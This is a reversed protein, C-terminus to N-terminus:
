ALPKFEPTDDGDRDDEDAEDDDQEDDEGMTGEIPQLEARHDVITEANEDAKVEMDIVTEGADDADDAAAEDLPKEPTKSKGAKAKKSKAKAKRKPKVAVPADEDDDDGESSPNHKLHRAHKSWVDEEEDDVAFAATEVPLRKTMFFMTAFFLLLGIGGTVGFVKGATVIRNDEIPEAALTAGQVISANAGHLDSTAYARVIGGLIPALQHQKPGHLEIHLVGTNPANVHLGAELAAKIHEPTAPGTYGIQRMTSMAANIVQDSTMLQQQSEAWAAADGAGSGDVQVVATATWVQDALKASILYSVGAMVALCVIAATVWGFSRQVGWRKIMRSEVKALEKQQAVVDDHSRLVAEASRRMPELAAEGDKLETSREDLIDKYQRLKARRAELEAEVTKVRGERRDLKGQLEAIEKKKAATEADVQEKQERLEAVAQEATKKMEADRKEIRASRESLEKERQDCAAQRQEIQGLQEKVQEERQQLETLDADLQKRLDDIEGRAKDIQERAQDNENAQTDLRTERDDLERLRREVDNLQEDVKQRDENVAARDSDIQERQQEVEKRQAELEDLIQQRLHDAAEQQAREQESVYENLQSSYERVAAQMSEILSDVQQWSRIVQPDTDPANPTHTESTPNSNSM